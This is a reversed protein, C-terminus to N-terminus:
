TYVTICIGVPTSTSLNPVRRMTVKPPMSAPAPETTKPAAGVKATAV